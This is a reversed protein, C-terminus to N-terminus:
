AHVARGWGHSCGRCRHSWVFCARAVSWHCGRGVYMCFSRHTSFHVAGRAVGGEVRLFKRPSFHGMAACRPQEHGEGAVVFLWCDEYVEITASAYTLSSRPSGFNSREATDLRRLAMYIRIPTDRMCFDLSDRP